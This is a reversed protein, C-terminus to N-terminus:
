TYTYIYIHCPLENVTEPLLSGAPVAPGLELQAKRDEKKRARQAEKGYENKEDKM